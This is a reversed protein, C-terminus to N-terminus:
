SPSSNEFWASRTLQTSPSITIPQTRDWVSPCGFQNVDSVDGLVKLVEHHYLYLMSDKIQCDQYQHPVTKSTAVCNQVNNKTSTTWFANTMSSYNSSNSCSAFSCKNQYLANRYQLSCHSLQALLGLVNTLDLYM